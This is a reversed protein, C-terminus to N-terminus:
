LHMTSSSGNLPCPNPLTPPVAPACHGCVDFPNAEVQSKMASM